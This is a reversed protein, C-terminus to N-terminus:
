GVVWRCMVEELKFSMCPDVFVAEPTFEGVGLLRLMRRRLLLVEGAVEGDLGLLHCLTRVLALAPSGLEAPTLHSGARHPFQAGPATSGEPMAVAIGEVKNLLSEGWTGSLQEKLYDL